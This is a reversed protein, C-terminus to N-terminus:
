STLGALKYSGFPADDATVFESRVADLSPCFRRDGPADMTTVEYLGAIVEVFGLLAAVDGADLRGDLVRWQQDGLAQLVVQEEREVPLYLATTPDSHLM